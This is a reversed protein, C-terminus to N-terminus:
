LLEAFSERYERFIRGGLYLTVVVIGLFYIIGGFAPFVGDIIVNQYFVTLLAFPNYYITFRLKEPVQTVPYLIPCLFFLLTLFNGVLHQVDRFYVNLASLAMSLGLLLVVQAVIVLPLLVLTWHFETGAVFMFIFLLPLSLLFNIMTTIVSVTPLIHPPFMSKTILHGSSVISGTGELLGSSM